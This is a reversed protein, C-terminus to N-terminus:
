RTGMIIDIPVTVLDPFIILLALVFFEAIVFVYIKRVLNEFSVKGTSCGVYLVVGVPPTILGICLNLVMIIGFYLTDIGAKEVVPFLVPAFILINPTIDLIMGM